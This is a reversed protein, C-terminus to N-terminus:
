DLESDPDYSRLIGRATSGVAQFFDSDPVWIDGLDYIFETIDDQPRIKRSRGTAATVQLEADDFSIDVAGGIAEDRIETAITTLEETSYNTKRQTWAIARERLSGVIDEKDSLNIKLDVDHRKSIGDRSVRYKVLNVEPIMGNRIFDSVAYIDAVSDILKLKGVDVALTNLSRIIKDHPCSRGRVEVGLMATTGTRPTVLVSRFPKANALGDIDIDEKQGSPDIALGEDVAGYRLSMRLEQGILSSDTFRVVTGENRTLTSGPFTPVPKVYVFDDNLQPKLKSDAVIEYRQGDLNGFDLPTRKTGDTINLVFLRYGFRTVVRRTDM